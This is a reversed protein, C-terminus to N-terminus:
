AVPKALAQALVQGLRRIGEEINEESANSFNL